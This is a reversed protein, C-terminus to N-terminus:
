WGTRSIVSEPQAGGCPGFGEGLTSCAGAPRAILAANPKAKPAAATRPEDKERGADQKRNRVDSPRVKAAAETRPKEEPGTEKEENRVASPSAKTAAATRPQGEERGEEQKRSGVASPRAKAAAM